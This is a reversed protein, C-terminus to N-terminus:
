YQYLCECILTVCWDTGHLNLINGKDDLLKVCMRDINVPGFYTRINDQLSGSYEYLVSGTTYGSPKIPIIALIDSTTPAKPLFNTNNNNNKNIENITYIQSQTLTRPASPLVIETSKYNSVYKSAILLGNSTASYQAGGEPLAQAEADAILQTLNNGQQAPTSCTFPLDPSYYMPLKLSNSLQAISVLSNNVHNQNYDDIVLILYKPGNLDLIANATNGTSVVNIYPLRYGMIWGLTTNLYHSSKTYCNNSCQLIGTFDFFTIITSETITFTEGTTSNSYVGDYLYMTIKGNYTNYVVPSNASIDTTASFTFGASIFAANLETVFQSSTYNGESLSISVNLSLTTNTIWFCTNGYNSDIVYWNYPIQYSYLRLSLVDKLLDSLDLTYDTSVSEIGGSSQRFQSDLNVFRAITNKLNPNLSDQKVPVQYTDNVGLQERNMPVYENGFLRIKQKRDTIKDTQTTNNQKLYENQYWNNVQKEGDPFVAANETMDSFAEVVIKNEENEHKTNYLLGQSYQLLQSQVAKFFVSLTPNTNKFKNILKNTKTTIEKPDGSQVGVIAMLESLSYSSTNTDIDNSAM